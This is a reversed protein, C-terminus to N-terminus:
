EKVANYLTLSAKESDIDGAIGYQTNENFVMFWTTGRIPRIKDSKKLEEFEVEPTNLLANVLDTDHILKDKQFIKKARSLFKPNENELM